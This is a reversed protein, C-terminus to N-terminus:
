RRFMRRMLLVGAAIGLGTALRPNERTFTSAREYAKQAVETARAQLDAVTDQMSKGSPSQSSDSSSSGMPSPRRTSASGPSSTSSTSSTSSSGIPGNQNPM